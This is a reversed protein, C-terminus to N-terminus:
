YKYPLNVQTSRINSIKSYLPYERTSKEEYFYVKVQGESIVGLVKMLTLEVYAPDSQSNINLMLEKKLKLAKNKETNLEELKERLEEFFVKRHKQGQEYFMLCVLSFLVVWWSRLFVEEFLSSPKIRLIKPIM